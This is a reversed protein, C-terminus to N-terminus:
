PVGASGNLTRIERWIHGYAERAAQVWPPVLHWDVTVEREGWAVQMIRRHGAFDVILDRRIFLLQGGWPKDARFTASARVSNLDVLDLTGPLQRLRFQTAFDFSPVAYSRQPGTLKGDEGASLEVAVQDLGIGADRWNQRLAPRSHTDAGDLPTEFRPSWPAEGAFVGRLTPLEPFFHNGPYELGNVLELVPDADEPELLLTRFFGFVMRGDRGHRLFGEVLLWGGSVGHIEEPSWLEAPVKVTGARLWAEDDTPGWPAWEPLPVSATPPEEPFTPDIDPTVNRGGGLWWDPSQGADALRGILEYYAIWGYKKGYREVAVRERGFRGVAEAIARDIDGLLAARWGLEWVRAMVEGRARRYETHNFDYNGRGEIASGIVYNEFDMGFTSDCEKANQDDDTMMPAPPLAAFTLAFPDVGDPVAGPHLTGALEFTARVYSRLLEHPTPTSGGQLFHNRLEILWGTLAHEFPGGPDPMQHASAAGFAAGIVREVVYPDDVDLMRTALDFLRKPEPRGYRQLAKTALDRVAQNTSTLLWATALGGLDDTESRDVHESWHEITQKLGSILLEDGRHRVWETWRRDREPLPLLRLIRDLFTANLRHTPSIHIEWLRDFHHRRGFGLSEPAKWDYTVILTALEDVTSDDLFESETALEQILAWRRRKEPALRWLHHGGFRRPLLGILSITIDEGFPHHDEGMLSNWLTAEALREEVEAYTMRVLLADAILYGAFRDFLIGTETDDSGNVEDRLLVGEEELRRFLSEDWNTEGADLIAKADDSPLRRVGRSWMERALETLRRKIQDAPVPNRAPDEALRKAVADRYLEFVGVLSTPLAEVGVPQKRLPNAAQCYMRLFLPNRFMRTPLWAGRADILYHDFYAAVIDNVETRNWKLDLKIATDPLARDALAERLTVIVLVNPYDDLAPTLEDLLARWESPREAENLGDIVLPIRNGVRGGASNLALLLDEFRDVKLGPVRRALDDLNGGARLHGGQIFVGATPRETPATLQAALHTKGTGATAVIATLPAQLDAHLDQLWWVVDRIEAALGTIALAAPLRRKRLGFVLSRLSRPSTAPPQQDAIRERAETPRRNRGAEAIARLDVVFRDLDDVVEQAATRTAHDEINPLADRLAETRVAIAAIRENLWHFAAPRLLAREIRHEIHNSTHLPAMWRAQIPAVSRKHAQSLADPSLVLEGFFTSRLEDLGSLQADFNEAAWLKTSIGRALGLGDIWDVDLKAPRQPLCLVFDTLGEVHKIAKQLSEEIQTRQGQTLENKPGLLFWKCSWGWVRGPDGLEGRHEVRLYFEVGPQQRRERLTGLAGYRRSVIARTLAEFNEDAAGRLFALETLDLTM